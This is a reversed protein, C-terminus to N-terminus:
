LVNFLFKFFQLEYFFNQYYSRYWKVFKSIGEQISTNPKFNVYEQIKSTDAFTAEVDGKQM